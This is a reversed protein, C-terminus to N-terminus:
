RTHTVTTPIHSLEPRRPIQQIGQMSERANESAKQELSGGSRGDVVLGFILGIFDLM